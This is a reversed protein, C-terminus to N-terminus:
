YIDLKLDELTKKIEELKIGLKIHKAKGFLYKVEITLNDFTTYYVNFTEALRKIIQHRDKFVSHM